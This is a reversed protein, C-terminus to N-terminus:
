SLTWSPHSHEFLVLPSMRLSQSSLSLKSQQVGLYVTATIQTMQRAKQFVSEGKRQEIGTTLSKIASHNEGMWRRFSFKLFNNKCFKMLARKVKKNMNENKYNKERFKLSWTQKTHYLMGIKEDDKWSKQMLLFISCLNM